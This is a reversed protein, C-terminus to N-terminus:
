LGHRIEGKGESLAPGKVGRRGPGGRRFVPGLLIPALLTTIITMMISVGFIDSGIVGRTLGVGAVILAVEGRPLMGIGIRTAGHRNFGLGLAPLGCGFVKSAIALASIVLGLALAQGMAGFDVLMGMFVFFIPVLAHYVSTLPQELSHRLETNSLALGIAYAGIIMALGLSEALGAALFGLALALALAAGSVKFGLFLRSVRRAILIGLATLGVWFGIAKGGVVMVDALSVNGTEAMGVVITLVLIGLVDDVVAAGLITVGEPTDLKGIDGLVRATIGVSTATMIAGMFLAVPDGLGTAFGLLVTAYAGLFFPFVVGGAAVVAAPGSYRLFQRLDTELGAHFLLIVAAIQALSYLELNETIFATSAQPHHFLPGVGPFSIGGLAFPGIIMGMALEGLVSPQKFYKEAIEGGVKAAALIIALQFVLRTVVETAEM